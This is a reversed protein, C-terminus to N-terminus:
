SNKSDLYGAIRETNEGMRFVVAFLELSMRIFILYLLGAPIALIGMAAAAGGVSVGVFFYLLVGLGVLGMVIGYIVRIFKITVYSKFSFDFLAKFFGVNESETKVSDTM